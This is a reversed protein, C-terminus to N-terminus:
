TPDFERLTWDAYSPLRLINRVDKEISASIGVMDAYRKPIPLQKSSNFAPPPIAGPFSFKTTSVPAPRRLSFYFLGDRRLVRSLFARWCCAKRGLREIYYSFLGARRLQSHEFQSDGVCDLRGTDM